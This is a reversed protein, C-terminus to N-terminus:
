RILPGALETQLIEVVALHAADVAALLSMAERRLLLLDGELLRLRTLNENTM